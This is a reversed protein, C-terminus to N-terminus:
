IPRRDPPHAAIKLRVAARIASKRRRRRHALRLICVCGSWGQLFCPRWNCSRSPRWSPLEAGLSKLPRVIQIAARRFTASKWQTAINKCKDTYKALTSNAVLRRILYGSIGFPRRYRYTAGPNECKLCSVRRQGTAGHIPSKKVKECTATRIKHIRDRKTYSTYM